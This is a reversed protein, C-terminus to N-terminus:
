VLEHGVGLGFSSCRLLTPSRDASTNTFINREGVRIFAAMALLAQKVQPNSRRATALIIAESVSNAQRRMLFNVEQTGKDGNPRRLEEDHLSFAFSSWLIGTHNMRVSILQKQSLRRLTEEVIKTNPPWQLLKTISPRSHDLCHTLCLLTEELHFDKALNPTSPLFTTSTKLNSVLVLDVPGTSPQCIGCSSEIEAYSWPLQKQVRIGLGSSVTSIDRLKTTIYVLKVGQIGPLFQISPDM